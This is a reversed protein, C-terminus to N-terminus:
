LDIEIGAIVTRPLGPRLGAPRRAAVYVEDGLNRVQLFLRYRDVLRYDAAFDVVWRAEVLEDPAIAGQGSHTRVDSTYNADLEVGWASGRLGVGLLLQSEPIYPIEDGKSVEPAWDAFTTLFSTRFESRTHTYVLRLPLRLSRGARVERAVAAELGWIRAAGGNFQDGTGEGGSSLTDTGLLNDFDNFFGTLEASTTTGALRYGLEYNIAEEAEVEETSGPAPPAFGKHVGAFVVSSPTVRYSAGLGPILQDVSNSRMKLASGTREPDHKGFDRRLLDISEYRLGPTLTWDGLEVRDVLFVAWADASSIRNSQSGPAGVSTLVMDGDRMAYGDENQFRDEEDEHYRVGVELDHRASPDWGLVTQVGRGFYNRRNNRVTLYDVGSDSEGRLVEMEDAHLLPDDLVSSIATGGVSQLKHWNRYFDNNYAIATLDVRESLQAFWSLQVQEHDSEFFDAASGAYRRLPTKAFDGETLGLYTEDDYQETKGLKLELAQYIRAGPKSTVRLKGMYDDLEFGTEGGNDLDKFGDTQIRFGELMWGIREGTNGASLNARFYGDQGGAIHARGGLEGPIGRSLYNVAGGTTFPGQRVSSAGKLIEFGEMRGATPSYYASPAAYPAPAILVGDEMLTIKQSREVGTGRIGINPRLGWGEEEQINIGPVQRLVRHVDSHNQTELEEATIRQASGPLEALRDGEGVVLLRDHIGAAPDADPDAAHPDAAPADAAEATKGGTEEPPEDTARLLSSSPLVFLAFALASHVFRRHSM